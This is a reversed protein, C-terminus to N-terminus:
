DTPVGKLLIDWRRGLLTETRNRLILAAAGFVTAEEGRSGFSVPVEERMDGLGQKNRFTDLLPGLLGEARAVLPGGLVLRQPNFLTCVSALVVALHECQHQIAGVCSVDPHRKTAQEIVYALRHDEHMGRLVSRHPEAIMRIFPDGSFLQDMCVHGCIRCVQSDQDERVGLAVHGLEGGTGTWGRYLQGDIILACGIGTTILVYVVHRVPEQDKQGALDGKALEGLAGLNADNDALVEFGLRKKLEREIRTRPPWGFLTSTPLVRRHDHWPGCVAVGGGLVRDIPIGHERLLELVIDRVLDLVGLGEEAVHMPVHRVEEIPELNADALLIRLDTRGLDIGVIAGRSRALTLGEAPRGQHGQGHGHAGANQAQLVIVGSDVLTRVTHSISAHAQGLKKELEPRTIPRGHRFLLAEVIAEQRERERTAV